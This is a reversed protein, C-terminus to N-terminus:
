KTIKRRYETHAIYRPDSVEKGIMHPPVPKWVTKGRFPNVGIWDGYEDGDKIIDGKQLYYYGDKINM